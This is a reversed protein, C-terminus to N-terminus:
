QTVKLISKIREAVDKSISFTFAKPGMVCKHTHNNSEIYAKFFDYDKIKDYLKDPKLNLSKAFAMFRISPMTAEEWKKDNETKLNLLTYITKLDESEDGKLILDRHGYPNNESIQILSSGQIKYAPIKIFKDGHKRNEMVKKYEVEYNDLTIELDFKEQDIKKWHVLKYIINNTDIESSYQNEFSDMLLLPDNIEEIKKNRIQTWQSIKEKDIKEFPSKDKKLEWNRPTSLFGHTYSNNALDLIIAVKDSNKPDVRLARGIMQLYLVLSMTPRALIVCEINKLDFGETLIDVNVLIKIEGNEFQQIIQNRNETQTDSTVFTCDNYGAKKFGETITEAHMKNIAYIITKKGKSYMEYNAIIEAIVEAKIFIKELKSNLYETRNKNLYTENPSIRIISSTYHKYKSLKGDQIFWSISDSCILKNFPPNFGQGDLRIPTATVGLLKTDSNHISNLISKYQSAKIHHAEDVVILGIHNPSNKKLYKVFTQVMAIVVIPSLNSNPPISSFKALEIATSKAVILGSSIQKFEEFEKLTKSIQKAIEIRHVLIIVKKKANDRNQYFDKIVQSFVITKGTGTPMQLLVEKVVPLSENIKKVLDSQYPHLPM